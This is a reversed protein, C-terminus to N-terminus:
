EKRKWIFFGPQGDEDVSIIQTPYELDEVAILTTSRVTKGERDKGIARISSDSGIDYTGTVSFNTAARPGTEAKYIGQRLHRRKIEICGLTMTEDREWDHWVGELICFPGAYKTFYRDIRTDELTKEAAHERNNSSKVGVLLMAAALFLAGAIAIFDQQPTQDTSKL